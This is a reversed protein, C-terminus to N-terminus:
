IIGKLVEYLDRYKAERPKKNEKVLRVTIWLLSDLHLPPIGTISSVERWFRIPNVSEGLNTSLKKIRSDVPIDIDNPLIARRAYKIRCAYNFMKVAFVLTKSSMPSGLVNSLLELLKRPKSYYEGENTVIIGEIKRLKKLRQEKAKHLRRNYRSKKLFELLEDVAGKVNRKKFYNAFEKWYQEGTGTLQYSILANFTVLVCFKNKSPLEKYLEKLAKYQEDYNEEFDLVSTIDLKKIAKILQELSNNKLNM